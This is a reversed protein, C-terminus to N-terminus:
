KVTITIKDSALPPNYPIHNGDGVLLQLTHKGPALTLETETQGKGFHKINDNAPLPAFAKEGTPIDTDILIHHHGTHPTQTGAPAITIGEVGMVVKVPNAIEAGDKPQVFFVKAGAPWHPQASDALAAHGALILLGCVAILGAHLKM